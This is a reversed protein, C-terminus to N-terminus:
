REAGSRERATAREVLADIAHPRGADEPPSSPREATRVEGPAFAERTRMTELAARLAPTSQLTALSRAVPRLRALAAEILDGLAALGPVALRSAREAFRAGYADILAGLAAKMLRNGTVVDPLSALAANLSEEFAQRRRELADSAEDIAAIRALLASLTPPLRERAAAPPDAAAPADAGASEQGAMVRYGVQLEVACDRLDAVAADDVAPRRSAVAHEVARRSLCGTLAPVGAEVLPPPKALRADVVEKAFGAIIGTELYRQVADANRRLAVQLRADAAQRVARTDFEVPGPAFLWFQSVVFAVGACASAAGALRTAAKVLLPAGLLVAIAGALAAAALSQSLAFARSAMIRAPWEYLLAAIRTELGQDAREVLGLSVLWLAGIVAAVVLASRVLPRVVPQLATPALGGLSAAALALLGLVVPSDFRLLAAPPLRAAYVIAAACILLAALADITRVRTVLLPPLEGRRDGPNSTGRRGPM